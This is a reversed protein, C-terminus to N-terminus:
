FFLRSYLSGKNLWSDQKRLRGNSCTFTNPSQTDASKAVEGWICAVIPKSANREAFKSSRGECGTTALLASLKANDEM